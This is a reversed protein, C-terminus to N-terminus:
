RMKQSQVSPSDPVLELPTKRSLSHGMIVNSQILLQYLTLALTENLASKLTISEFVSLLNILRRETM